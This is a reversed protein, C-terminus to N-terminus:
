NCRRGLRSSSLDPRHISRWGGLLTEAHAAPQLTRDAIAAHVRKRMCATPDGHGNPEVVDHMDIAGPGRGAAAVWVLGPGQRTPRMRESGRVCPVWSPRVVLSRAPLARVPGLGLVTYRDFLFRPERGHGDSRIPTALDDDPAAVSGASSTWVAVCAHM